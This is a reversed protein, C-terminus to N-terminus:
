NTTMGLQFNFIVVAVVVVLLIIFILFQMARSTSIPSFNM